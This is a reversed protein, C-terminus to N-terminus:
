WTATTVQSEVSNIARDALDKLRQERAAVRPSPEIGAIRFMEKWRYVWDHRLLAEAANRRRIASTREPDARLGALVKLVDSGDPQVPVVADPWPFM